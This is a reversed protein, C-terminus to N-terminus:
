QDVGWLKGYTEALTDDIAFKVTGDPGIEVDAANDSTILATPAGQSYALREDDVGETKVLPEGALLRGIQDVSAYALYMFSSVFSVAQIDDNKIWEINQAGGNAGLVSVKDGLDAQRIAPVVFSAAGDFVTHVHTIEPDSQLLNVVRVGLQPGVDAAVFDELSAISCTGCTEVEDVVGEIFEVSSAFEPANLALLRAEGESQTVVYAGEAKGGMRYDTSVDFAVGGESPAVFQQYSGVPIDKAAAASLGSRVVDPDISVLMIAQFGANVAQEIVQQQTIPDNKGDFIQSEWGMTDAAISIAKAGSNCGETSTACAVIALRIGEPADFGETPGNFTTDTLGAVAAEVTAAYSALDVEGGSASTEGESGCAAAVSLTVAATVVALARSLM